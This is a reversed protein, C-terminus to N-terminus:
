GQKFLCACVSRECMPANADYSNIASPTYTSYETYCHDRECSRSRCSTGHSLCCATASPVERVAETKWDSLTEELEVKTGGLKRLHTACASLAAATVLILVRAEDNAGGVGPGGLHADRAGTGTQSPILEQEERRLRRELHRRLYERARSGQHAYRRVAAKPLSITRRKIFRPRARGFAAIQHSTVELRGGNRLLRHQM